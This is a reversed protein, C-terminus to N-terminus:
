PEGACAPISRADHARRIANGRNGRARPSLGSYAAVQHLFQSTGGRVRPYVKRPTEQMLLLRPEGACAPISRAYRSNCGWSRRNGRARPSLGTDTPSPCRPPRTGGRVRPYVEQVRTACFRTSPEGACAPISRYDLDQHVVSYRNGRARPSLGPKPAPLQASFGTGGRVRPYVGHEQFRAM